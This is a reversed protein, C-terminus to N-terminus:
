ANESWKWRKLLNTMQSPAIIKEHQLRGVVINAGIGMETAFETVTLLNHSLQDVLRAWDGPPILLDRAFIDAEDEEESPPENNGIGHLYVQKRGHRLIHCAEHFFSFWFVDARRWRLSLQILAKESSLWRAM